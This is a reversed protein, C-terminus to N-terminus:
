ATVATTEWRRAASTTRPPRSTSCTSTTASRTAPSRGRKRYSTLSNDLSQMVLLLVSRESARRVNLARLLTTPHTLILRLFRLARMPGGDIMPGFMLYLSNYGKGHHCIEVHTNPEPHISSTIAVGQAFDTRTRSRAMLMAESNSRSLEGLRSSLNPLRGTDRLKHLLAQTGLAAASFVVQEATFERRGKRLWAGSRQATVAYGGDPLPRVDTVTTMPHVEAGAREALYLYNANTTNKAGHPCGAFCSSCGICGTREPGAGGFYPDPVTKEAEGFFVGVDTPHYTDEVGSTARWTSCRRTRRRRALSSIRQAGTM